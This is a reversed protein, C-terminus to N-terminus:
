IPRKRKKKKKEEILFYSFYPFVLTDGLDFHTYSDLIQSKLKRELFFYLLFFSFLGSGTRINLECTM